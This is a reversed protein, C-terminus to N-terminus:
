FRTPIKPQLVFLCYQLKWQASLFAWTQLYMKPSPFYHTLFNVIFLPKIRTGDHQVMAIVKLCVYEEMRLHYQRFSAIVKTIKEVMNGVDQRLQDMTIPKGMMSTLCTQLTVLNTAVQFELYLNIGWMCLPIPYLCAAACCCLPSSHRLLLLLLCVGLLETASPNTQRALLHFGTAAHTHSHMSSSSFNRQQSSSSCLNQTETLNSTMNGAQLGAPLLFPNDVEQHLEVKEGDTRTTGVRNSGHIAQYASTTLVLLEHWKHTLLRTHIDVPLEAYFPLRRTWQVLKYVISDGIQCLKQQLDATNQNLLEGINQFWSFPEILWQEWISSSSVIM